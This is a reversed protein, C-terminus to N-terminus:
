ADATTLHFGRLKIYWTVHVMGMVDNNAYNPSGLVRFHSTATPYNSAATQLWEYAKGKLFKKVNVYKKITQYKYSKFGPFNSL